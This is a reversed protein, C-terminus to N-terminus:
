DEYALDTLRKNSILIPFVKRLNLLQPSATIRTLIFYLVLNWLVGAIIIMLSFSFIIVLLSGIISLMMVAFLPVPLGYILAKKRINRYIEYRKM